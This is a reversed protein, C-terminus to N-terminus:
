TSDAATTPSDRMVDVRVCGPQACQAPSPPPYLPGTASTAMLVNLPDTAEGWVATKGGFAQAALLVAQDVTIDEHDFKSLELAGALAGADAAAQAQTRAVWMVGYDVVFASFVILALCAIAVHIIIAGRERSTTQDLSRSM